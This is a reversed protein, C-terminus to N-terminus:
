ASGIGREEWLSGFGLPEAAPRFIKPGIGCGM